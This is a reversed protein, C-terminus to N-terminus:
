SSRASASSGSSSAESVPGIRDIGNGGPDKSAKLTQVYAIIARKEDPTLQNDNFVPMNEPGSLMATYIQRDTADNLAPAMKGASLPAGKGTFGHCSACNLRFLEGGQGLSLTTDRLDGTPREPGGGIRSSTPRSSARDAGRHVQGGQPGERRGPRAGADPRHQGPLVRRRRRRRDAVPRPGTVGQLNAGHCTICSVEYLQQGAAVDAEASTASNAGSSTAFLAYAGGMGILAILLM